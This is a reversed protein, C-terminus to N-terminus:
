ADSRAAQAMWIRKGDAHVAAPQDFFSKSAELLGTRHALHFQASQVLDVPQEDETASGVVQHPQGPQDGLSRLLAEPLLAGSTRGCPPFRRGRAELARTFVSLIRTELAFRGLCRLFCWAVGM